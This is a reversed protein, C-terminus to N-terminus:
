RILHTVILNSFVKLVDPHNEQAAWFIVNRDMYDVVDINANAKLLKDVVNVHGEAVAIM